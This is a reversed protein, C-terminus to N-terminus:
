GAERVCGLIPEALSRCREILPSPASKSPPAVAVKMECVDHHPMTPGHEIVGDLEVLGDGGDVREVVQREQEHVEIAAAM